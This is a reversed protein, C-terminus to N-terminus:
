RGATVEMPQLGIDIQTDAGGAMAIIVLPPATPHTAIGAVEARRTAPGRGRAAPSVGGTIVGRQATGLRHAIAAMGLGSGIAVTGSKTMITMGARTMRGPLDPQIFVTDTVVPGFGQKIRIGAAGTMPGIGLAAAATNGAVTAVKTGFPVLNGVADGPVMARYRVIRQSALVTDTSGTVHQIALIAIARCSTMIAMDAGAM